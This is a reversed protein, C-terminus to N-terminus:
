FYQWTLSHTSSHLLWINHCATSVTVRGLRTWLRASPLATSGLAQFAHSFITTTLILWDDWWFNLMGTVARSWFRLTVAITSITIGVTAVAIVDPVRDDTRM